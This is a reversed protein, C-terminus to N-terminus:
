QEILLARAASARVTANAILQQNAAAQADRLLQVADPHLKADDLVRIADGLDKAALALLRTLLAPETVSQADALMETASRINELANLVRLFAAVEQVQTADLAIIGGALAAGPSDNFAPSNYFLVADEITQVSNNHFFPPTDAAEVLPPTNFQGNGFGHSSPRPDLGAGGDPPILVGAPRPPLPPFSEVGTDIDDNGLSGAGFNATAGANVHCRNCRGVDNLFIEQGNAASVGKLRLPLVLDAQRGLSLQYVELADLESATPFRFDVGLVRDLTRTFHQRVAGTAFSHLSGDGPAGDGSWGIHPGSLSQVSTALALTHPVARLVGPKDFGDVNETILAFNRLMESNELGALAPNTEAVFLPDDAPLQAIFGPDLTFNNEARHCTGCTRGNGSFRENFFLEAGQAILDGRRSTIAVSTSGRVVGAEDLFEVVVRNTAPDFLVSEGLAFVSFTATQNVAMPKVNGGIVAGTAPDTELVALAVPPGGTTRATATMVGAAGVNVAAVAFAGRHRLVSAKRSPLTAFATAMAGSISTELIGDHSATAALAVVDPTRTTSASVLLTNIGPISDVQGPGSSFDFEVVTPSFPASPTLAIVFTQSKGPALDVPANPIGTALNTAPDTTQFILTAAIPKKLFVGVGQAPVSGANVVTVFATVPSGVLASRSSPLVAAVLASVAVQGSVPPPSTSVFTMGSLLIALLLLSHRAPRNKAMAGHM